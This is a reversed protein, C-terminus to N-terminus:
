FIQCQELTVRCHFFFIKWQGHPGKFSCEWIFVSQQKRLFQMVSLLNIWTTKCRCATPSASQLRARIESEPFFVVVCLPSLSQIFHLAPGNLIVHHLLLLSFFTTFFCNSFVEARVGGEQAAPAQCSCFPGFFFMFVCLCMKSNSSSFCQATMFFPLACLGVCSDRESVTSEM